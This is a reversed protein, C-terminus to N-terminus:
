IEIPRGRVAKHNIDPVHPNVAQADLIERCVPDLDKTSKDVIGVNFM